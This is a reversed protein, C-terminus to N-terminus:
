AAGHDNHPRPYRFGGSCSCGVAPDACDHANRLWQWFGRLPVHGPARWPRRWLFSRIPNRDSRRQMARIIQQDRQIAAQLWPEVVSGLPPWDRYPESEASPM